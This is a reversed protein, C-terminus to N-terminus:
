YEQLEPEYGAEFKMLRKNFKKVYKWSAIKDFKHITKYGKLLVGGAPKVENPMYTYDVTGIDVTGDELTIMVISEHANMLKWDTEM